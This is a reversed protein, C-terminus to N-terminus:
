HYILNKLLFLQELSEQYVIREDSNYVKLNFRKLIVIKKWAAKKIPTLVQSWNMDILM